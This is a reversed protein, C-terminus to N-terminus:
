MGTPPPPPISASGGELFRGWFAQDEKTLPSADQTAFVGVTSLAVALLFGTAFKMKRATLLLYRVRTCRLEVSALLSLCSNITHPHVFQIHKSLLKQKEVVGSFRWWFKALANFRRTSRYIRLTEVISLTVSSNVMLSFTHFCIPSSAGALVMKM